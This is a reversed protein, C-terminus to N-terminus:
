HRSNITSQVRSTEYAYHIWLCRSCRGNWAVNWWRWRLWQLGRCPRGLSYLLCGIRLLVVGHLLLLLLSRCSQHLLHCRIGHSLWSHSSWHFVEVIRLLLLLLETRLHIIQSSNAPRHGVQTGRISRRLRRHCCFLPLLLVLVRGCGHRMREM